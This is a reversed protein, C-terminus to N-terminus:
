DTLDHEKLMNWIRSTHNQPKSNDRLLLPEKEENRIFGIFWVVIGTATFLTLLIYADIIM